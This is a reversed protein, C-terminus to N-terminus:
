QSPMRCAAAQKVITSIGPASSGSSLPQAAWVVSCAPYLGSMTRVGEPAAEVVRKGTFLKVKLERLAEDAAGSLRESLGPLIRAGSRHDGPV